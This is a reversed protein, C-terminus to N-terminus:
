GNVEEIQFFLTDIIKNNTYLYLFVYDGIKHKYEFKLAINYEEGLATWNHVFSDTRSYQIAYSENIKLGMAKILIPTDCVIVNVPSYLMPHEPNPLSPSDSPFFHYTSLVIVVFCFSMIVFVVILYPIPSKKNM